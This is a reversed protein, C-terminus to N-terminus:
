NISERYILHHFSIAHPIPFPSHANPLCPLCPLFHCIVFSWHGIVFSLHGYFRDGVRPVKRWGWSAEFGQALKPFFPPSYLHNHEWGKHM